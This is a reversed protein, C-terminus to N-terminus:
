AQNRAIGAIWAGLHEDRELAALGRWAAVFVEQTLDEAESRPVRAILIAHVMPAYRQYLERFSDAEGVRARRALDSSGSEGAARVGADADDATCALKASRRPSSTM